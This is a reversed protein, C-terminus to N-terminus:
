QILTTPEIVMQQFLALRSVRLLPFGQREIPLLGGIRHQFLLAGRQFSNMGLDQLIDRYPNIQCKFRKKSSAFCSFGWTKGPETPIVTIVAEGERLAAKGHRMVLPHHEGLNAVDLHDVMPFDLATEFRTGHM